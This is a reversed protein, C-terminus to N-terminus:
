PWVFVPLDFAQGGAVLRLRRPGPAGLPEVHLAIWAAGTDRGFRLVLGESGAAGEPPPTTDRLRWARHFGPTLQLAAQEAGPAPPLEVRIEAVRGRRAIRPWEVRVGGASTEVDSLVGGAGFAGLLAAVVFAVLALWAIREARWFRHQFGITQELRAIEAPADARPTDM